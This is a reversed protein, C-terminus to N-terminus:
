RMPLCVIWRGRQYQLCQLLREALINEAHKRTDPPPVKEWKQRRIMQEKKDDWRKGADYVIFYGTKRKVISGRMKAEGRMPYASSRM